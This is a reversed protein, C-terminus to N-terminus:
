ESPPTSIRRGKADLRLTCPASLRERGSPGGLTVAGGREVEVRAAALYWVIRDAAAEEVPFSSGDGHWVISLGGFDRRWPAPPRPPLHLLVTADPGPDLRRGAIHFAHYRWEVGRQNEGTIGILDIDNGPLVLAATEGPALEFRFRMGHFHIPATWRGGANTREPARAVPEPDTGRTVVCGSAGAAAVVIAVWHVRVPPTRPAASGNM